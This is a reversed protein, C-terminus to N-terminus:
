GTQDENCSPYPKGAVPSVRGRTANTDIEAVQGRDVDVLVSLETVGSARLHEWGSAYPDVCTGHAPGDPPIAVYPLDSNVMIPRKLKYALEAGGRSNHGVSWPGVNALRRGVGLQLLRTLTADTGAIREAERAIPPSARDWAALALNPRTSRTFTFSRRSSGGCGSLLAVSVVMSATYVPPRAM